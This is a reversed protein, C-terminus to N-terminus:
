SSPCHFVESVSLNLDVKSVHVLLLLEFKRHCIIGFNQLIMHSVVTSKEQQVKSKEIESSYYPIWSPLSQLVDMMNVKYTCYHLVILM